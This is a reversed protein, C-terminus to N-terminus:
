TINRALWWFMSTKNQHIIMKMDAKFQHGIKMRYKGFSTSSCQFLNEILNVEEKQKILDEKQYNKAAETIIIETQNGKTIKKKEQDKVIMQQKLVEESM